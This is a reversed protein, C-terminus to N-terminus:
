PRYTFLILPVLSHPKLARIGRREQDTLNQSSTDSSPNDFERGFHFFLFTHALLEVLDYQQKVDGASGGPATPPVEFSGRDGNLVPSSCHWTPGQLVRGLLAGVECGTIKGTGLLPTAHPPM